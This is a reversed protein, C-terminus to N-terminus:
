GKGEWDEFPGYLGKSLYRESGDPFVTVVSSHPVDLAGESIRNAVARAAVSAAGSSSGVLHGYEAALRQVEAHADRDPVTIIEDVADPELLEAVPPDHTGIGETKYPAAERDEGWLEGFTSGGPEVAVVHVDPERDRIARAMGMLTGASGIGVVLAGVRGDLQKVVERGTTREHADVNLPTSFQQPVVADDRENAIEAAKEAAGAMGAENPVHVLEAGLAAMLTEKEESFGRPLVFVAQLGLQNAAIAMGIGTNGATPEVVTGGPPLDGQELLQELIYKGIRDKVSGGPNFTELKAHIQVDPPSRELTVLPTRGVTELLSTAHTTSLSM